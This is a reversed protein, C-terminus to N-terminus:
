NPDREREREEIGKSAGQSLRFAQVLPTGLFFSSHSLFFPSFFSFHININSKEKTKAKQKYFEQWSFDCTSLFYGFLSPLVPRTKVCQSSEHHAM